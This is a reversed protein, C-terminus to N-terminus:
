FSLIIYYLAYLRVKNKYFRYYNIPLINAWDKYTSISNLFTHQKNKNTIQNQGIVSM